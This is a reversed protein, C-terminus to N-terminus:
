VTVSVYCRPEPAAARDVPVGITESEEHGDGPKKGWEDTTLENDFIIQRDTAVPLRQFVTEKM